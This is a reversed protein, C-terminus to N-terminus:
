GGIYVDASGQVIEGTGSHPSLADGLRSAPIGNVFVSGSGRAVKGNSSGCCADREVTVSGIHAAGLRNIFVNGSCNSIIEGDFPLPGHPPDDHGSHEGATTGRVADGMRSAPPM